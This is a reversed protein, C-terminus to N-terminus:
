PYLTVYKGGPTNRIVRIIIIRHEIMRSILQSILYVGTPTAQLTMLIAASPASLYVMFAFKLKNLCMGTPKTSEAQNVRLNADIDPGTEPRHKMYAPIKGHCVDPKSDIRNGYGRVHKEAEMSVVCIDSDSEITELSTDCESDTVPHLESKICEADTDTDEEWPDIDNHTNDYQVDLMQTDTLGGFRSLHVHTLFHRHLYGNLDALGKETYDTGVPIHSSTIARPLVLRNRVYNNSVEHLHDSSPDTFMSNFYKEKNENIQKVCGTNIRKCPANGPICTRKRLDLASSAARKTGSNTDVEHEPGFIGSETVSNTTIEHRSEFRDRKTVSATNVENVWGVGLRSELRFRNTRERTLINEISFSIAARAPASNNAM